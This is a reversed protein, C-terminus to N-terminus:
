KRAVICLLDRDSLFPNDKQFPTTDRGHDNDKGESLRAYIDSLYSDFARGYLLLVEGM